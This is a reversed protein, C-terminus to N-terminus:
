GDPNTRQAMVWCGFGLVAWGAAVALHFAAVAFFVCGVAEVGIRVHDARTRALGRALFARLTAVTALAIASPRRRKAREERAQQDRVARRSPRLVPLEVTTM